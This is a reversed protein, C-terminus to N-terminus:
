RGSAATLLDSFRGVYRRMAELTADALEVYVVRHDLHNQTRVVMGRQVLTGIYRLGTTSPVSAAICLSSVSVRRQELTALYLDLLIDWAPDAFLAADFFKGRLRRGLIISKVLASEGFPCNPATPDPRTCRLLEALRVLQASVEDCRAAAARYSFAREFSTLPPCAQDKEQPEDNANQDTM